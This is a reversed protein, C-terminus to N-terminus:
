IKGSLDDVECPCPYFGLTNYGEGDIDVYIYIIHKVNAKCFWGVVFSQPGQCDVVAFTSPDLSGHNGYLLPHDDVWYYLNIYGISPNGILPPTVM